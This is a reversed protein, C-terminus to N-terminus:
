SKKPEDFLSKQEKKEENQKKNNDGILNNFISLTLYNTIKRM